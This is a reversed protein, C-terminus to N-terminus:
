RVGWNRKVEEMFMDGLEKASQKDGKLSDIDFTVNFETPATNGNSSSSTARSILSVLREMGDFKRILDGFKNTEKTNLVLEEKHLMAIRGSNGAWSGTYGGTDFSAGTRLRKAQNLLYDRLEPTSFQKSYEEMMEAILQADAPSMDKTLEDYRIVNDIKSGEARGQNSLGSGHQRIAEQRFPNDVLDQMKDWIFKGVIVKSDARTYATDWTGQQSDFGAGGIGASLDPAPKGGSGGATMSANFEDLLRLSEELEKIVNERITTGVAQMTGDMTNALEPLTAKLEAGLKEFESKINGLSGRAIDERMAAFKAEDNLMDTYHQNWYERLDDIRQKEKDHYENELKEKESLEEQKDALMDNLNEKRLDTERRRKRKAIDKDLKNLEKELRKREYKAERSDDLSLINIKSQIEARQEGYEGMEEDYDLQANERDMQKLKDDIVKRFEDMEKRYNDMVKQHRKDEAEMEKDLSKLHAEQKQRIADKYANVIRDAIERSANERSEEIRKNSEEISLGLQRYQLTLERLRKNYEEVADPTLQHSHRILMSLQEIEQKIASRKSLLYNTQSQMAIQWQTSGEVNAEMTQNLKALEFDIYEVDRTFQVLQSDIWQKKMNALEITTEKVTLRLTNYREKVEELARGQLNGYSILEKLHQIEELNVQQKYEMFMTQREIVATHRESAKDLMDYKVLEHEISQDYNDRRKDYRALEAKILELQIKEIKVHQDLIDGQMGLIESELQYLEQARQAEERSVNVMNGVTSQGKGAFKMNKANQIWSSPDIMRGANRVSYNHDVYSLGAYERYDGLTTGVGVKQGAKVKINRLDKFRHENGKSDVVVVINGQKADKFAQKVTGAINSELNKFQPALTYKNEEGTEIMKPTEAVGWGSLRRTSTGRMTEPADQVGYQTPKRRKLDAEHRASQQKMVDLKKQELELENELANQYEDSYEPFLEKIAQQQKLALNLEELARVHENITFTATENARAYEEAIRIAEKKAENMKRIEEQQAREAERQKKEADRKKKEAEREAERKAREAERQTKEAERQAEQQRKHEDKAWKNDGYEASQIALQKMQELYPNTGGEFSPPTNAQKNKNQQIKEELETIQEDLQRMSETIIGNSEQAMRELARKREALIKELRATNNELETVYREDDAIQSEAALYNSLVQQQDADLKGEANARMVTDLYALADAEEGLIDIMQERSINGSEYLEKYEPYTELLQAIILEQEEIAANYADTGEELLPLISDLDHLQDILDRIDDVSQDTAIGLASNLVASLGQIKDETDEATDGLEETAENLGEVDDVTVNSSEGVEKIGAALDTQNQIAKTYDGILEEQLKKGLGSGEIASSIIGIVDASTEATLEKFHEYQKEAAAVAETDNVDVTQLDKAAQKLGSLAEKHKSITNSVEIANDKIFGEVSTYVGEIEKETLQAQAIIADFISITAIDESDIVMGEILREWMDESRKQAYESHIQQKKIENQEYILVEQEAGNIYDRLFEAQVEKGSSKLQEEIKRLENNFERIEEISEANSPFKLDKFNPIIRAFRGIDWNSKLNKLFNEQEKEIQKLEEKATSFFELRDEQKELKLREEELEIQRELLEIKGELIDSSHYVKNGYADEGAIIEPFTQALEEQLKKLKAVKKIREDEALNDSDLEIELTKVESLAKNIEDQSEKFSRAQNRIADDLEEAKQKAESAKSIFHELVLGLGFTIAGGALGVAIGRLASKFKTATVEARTMGKEIEAIALKADSMQKTGFILAEGLGRARKSVILLLSGVVTLLVPLAGVNETFKTIATLVNGFGSLFAIMTDTLFAEGLALSLEEIKRKVANIRAELSKLYEENEEIASGAASAQTEMMSYYMSDEKRLDSLLSSM